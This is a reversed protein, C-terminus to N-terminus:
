VHDGAYMANLLANMLPLDVMSMEDIIIVDAELPNEANRRFGNGLGIIEDDKRIEQCKWCVIFRRHRM